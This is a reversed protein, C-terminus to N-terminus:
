QLAFTAMFHQTYVTADPDAVTMLMYMRNGVFWIRIYYDQTGKLISLDRAVYTGVMSDSSSLLMGGMGNALSTDMLALYTNPNGPFTGAPM